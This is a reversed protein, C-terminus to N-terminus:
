NPPHTGLWSKWFSIYQQPAKSFAARSPFNSRTNSSADPANQSAALFGSNAVNGPTQVPLGIAFSAIGAVAEYQLAPTTSDLLAALFPLASTNHVSRLAHAACYKVSSSYNSTTLAGLSSIGAADTSRYACIAASLHDQANATFTAADASVITALANAAGGRIQGGLGVAKALGESSSSLQTWIPQLVGQGLDDLAGAGVMRAIAPGAAPDEAAAGIERALRNAPPTDINYAYAAPLPSSLASIYMQDLPVGGIATPMLRWASGQERLFFIGTGNGVGPTGTPLLAPAAIVQVSTGAVLSGEVVRAVLLNINVIPGSVAGGQITGVVVADAQSLLLGLSAYSAPNALALGIGAFVFIATKKM